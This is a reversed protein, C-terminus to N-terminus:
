YYLQFSFHHLNESTYHRSFKCMPLKGIADPIASDPNKDIVTVQYRKFYQYPLNNAFVSDVADLGYVICPYAMKITEPPQYYVPARESSVFPLLTEELLAQLELRREM